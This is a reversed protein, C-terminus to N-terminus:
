RFGVVTLTYAVHTQEAPAGAFHIEIKQVRTNNVTFMRDVDGCSASMTTAVDDEWITARVPAAADGTITCDLSLWVSQVPNSANPFEFEVWDSGDGEPQSIEETHAFMRVATGTGPTPSFRQVQAPADRNDGDFPAVRGGGADVIVSADLEVGADEEVGADPDLVVGADEGGADVLVGGADAGEGADAEEVPETCGLALVLGLGIIGLRM